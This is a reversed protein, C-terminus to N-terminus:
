TKCNDHASQKQFTNFSLWHILVIEPTYRVSKHDSLVYRLGIEINM